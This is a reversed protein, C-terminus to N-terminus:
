LLSLVLSTADQGLIILFDIDNQSTVYEQGAGEPYIEDPVVAKAKMFGATSMVIEAGLYEKLAALEEDKEGDTFDYITTKSWTRNLANNVTDVTYGSSELLFATQGALGTVTTGNQIEIVVSPSAPKAIPTTAVYASNSAESNFIDAALTHLESWDEKYPLLVYAGNISTEYLLGSQNDIVHSAIHDDTIDPIYKAFKVMEWVSMDTTVHDRISGLIRNLKAPNLLVGLSLTKEKVAMLIKQQRAARAFDTGEGNNGHRSRAFKLATAGDLHTWGQTFSLTEVSGLEDDLPYTPDVFSRDIYVDIGGLTDIIDEFGSFDVKITYDVNQGLITEITEAAAAPGSGRDNLEAYANVANIKRYGYGPIEVTLDRPISIMGVEKTSPQFSSFIITDTLEPGEHGYGGIGLLLVNTREDESGPLNASPTAVLHRLSNLFSLHDNGDATGTRAIGTSLLFAGVAFIALGFLGLKLAPSLGKRAPKKTAEPIVPQHLFEKKAPKDAQSDHTPSLFDIGEHDVMRFVFHAFRVM